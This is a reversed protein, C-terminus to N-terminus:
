GEDGDSEDPNNHPWRIAEARLVPVLGGGKWMM